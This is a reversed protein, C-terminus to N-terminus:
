FILMSFSSRSVHILHRQSHLRMYLMAVVWGAVNFFGALVRIYIKHKLQGMEKATM